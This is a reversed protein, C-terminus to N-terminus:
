YYRRTRPRNLRLLVFFRNIQDREAVMSNLGAQRIPYLAVRQVVHRALVLMLLDPEVSDVACEALLEIPVAAYFETQGPLSPWATQQMAILITSKLWRIRM